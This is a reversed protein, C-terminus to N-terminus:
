EDHHGGNYPDIRVCRESIYLSQNARNPNLIRMLILTKRLIAFGIEINQTDMFVVSACM